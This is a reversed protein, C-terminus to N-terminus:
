PFGPADESRLRILVDHVRGDARFLQQAILEKELLFGECRSCRQLRATAVAFTPTGTRVIRASVTFWDEAWSHQCVQAVGAEKARRRRLIPATYQTELVSLSQQAACYATASERAVYAV